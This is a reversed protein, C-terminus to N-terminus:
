KPTLIVVEMCERLSNGQNNGEYTTFCIQQWQSLPRGISFKLQLVQHLNPEIQFDKCNQDPSGVSCQIQFEEDGPYVEIKTIGGIVKRWDSTIKLTRVQEADNIYFVRDFSDPNLNLYEFSTFGAFGTHHIETLGSGFVLGVLFGGVLTLLYYVIILAWYLFNSWFGGKQLKDLFVIIRERLTHRDPSSQSEQKSATKQSAAKTM